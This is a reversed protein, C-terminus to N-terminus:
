HKKFFAFGTNEYLPNPKLDLRPSDIHSGVINLGSEISKTGIMAAYIAKERNIYYIKDGPALVIKEKINVFGNKELIETIFSAAERETKSKNLFHIFEDSFKIIEHRYEDSLTDWGCKKTDFLFEKLKETESM